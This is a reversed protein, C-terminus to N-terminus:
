CEGSHQPHLNKREIFRNLAELSGALSGNGVVAPNMGSEQMMRATNEGIAILLLDSRNEWVAERFSLSSTFLVADVGELPLRDHTPRLSYCRIEIAEGGADRISQALGDDPVDARPIGIRRGRVWEGLYPVLDRSYFSPLIEAHVGGKELAAATQPGIAILRPHKKLRPAIARATIASTFFIAEFSEKEVAVIFEEVKERHLIATLPSVTVCTHGYRACLERDGEEKGPVRTIAIRM